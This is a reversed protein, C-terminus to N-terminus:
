ARPRRTRGPGRGHAKLAASGASERHATVSAAFSAPSSGRGTKEDSPGSAVRSYVDVRSTIFYVVKTWRPPLRRGGLRALAKMPSQETKARGRRIGPRPSTRRPPPGRPADRGGPPRHVRAPGGSPPVRRSLAGSDVKSDAHTARLAIRGSPYPHRRAQAGRPPPLAPGHPLSKPHSRSFCSCAVSREPQTLPSNRWAAESSLSCSRTADGGSSAHWPASRGPTPSAQWWDNWDGYWVQEHVPRRSVDLLTPSPRWSPHGMTTEVLRKSSSNGSWADSAPQGAWSVWVSHRRKDYSRM